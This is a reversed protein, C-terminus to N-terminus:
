VDCAVVALFEDLPAEDDLWDWFRTVSRIRSEFAACSKRATAYSSVLAYYRCAPSSETNRARGLDSTRIIITAM